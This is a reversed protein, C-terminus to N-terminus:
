RNKEKLNNLIIENKCYFHLERIKNKVIMEIILTNPNYDILSSFKNAWEIIAIQNNLIDPMDFIALENEDIIRYLDFHWINITNYEYTNAINFTPSGVKVIKPNLLKILIKAFTTKGAGIEGNLFIPFNFKKLMKHIKKALLKLEGLNHIEIINKKPM